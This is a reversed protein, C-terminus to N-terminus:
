AVGCYYKTLSTSTATNVIGARTSFSLSKARGGMYGILIWGWLNSYKFDYLNRSLYSNNTQEATQHNHADDADGGSYCIYIGSHYEFPWATLRNFIADGKELDEPSGAMCYTTVMCSFFLITILLFYKGKGIRNSNM